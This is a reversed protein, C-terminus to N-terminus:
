VKNMECPTDMYISFYDLLVNIISLNTDIESMRSQLQADQEIILEQLSIRAQAFKQQSSKLSQGLYKNTDKQARVVERLTKIMLVTEKHYARIKALNAQAQSQYKYRAIKEYAEQTNTKRGDLPITVKLGVSTRPRSEDILDRRSDEFGYDRGIASYEGFLKVDPDNYTKSVKTEYKEEKNLLDVIEDYVTNQFPAEKNSDIVATCKLVEEVTKEVDYPALVIEKEGLEPLLERLSKLINNRQYSLALLTSQKSLWQSHSRAVEGSDAVQSRARGKADKHQKEALGVIVELIKKQENNAVLAWYLKRLNSQFTKLQAKKELEARKIGAEGKHLENSTKRGLFNQFLDISLNFSLGSTSAGNIFANSTKSAFTKVGLDIGYRTPKILGVSYNTTNKTVAGDTPSLLKERSEYVSGEGELRLGLKDLKTLYDIKSSEYSAEIQQVSPPHESSLEGLLKESM